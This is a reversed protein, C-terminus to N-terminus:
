KSYVIVRYLNSELTNLIDSSGRGELGLNYLYTKLDQASIYLEGGIRTSKLNYNLTTGM